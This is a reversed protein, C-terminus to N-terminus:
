RPVIHDSTSSASVQEGRQPVGTELVIEASAPTDLTPLSRLQVPVLKSWALQYARPRSAQFGRREGSSIASSHVRSVQVFSRRAIRGITDSIIPERSAATFKM